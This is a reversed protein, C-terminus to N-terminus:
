CESYGCAYCKRCGEENIVAAEGCEPCLDGFKFLAAQHGRQPEPQPAPHKAGGNAGQIPRATQPPASATADKRDMWMDLYRELIQGIGDPLSRV